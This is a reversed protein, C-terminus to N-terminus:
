IPKQLSRKLQPFDWEYVVAVDDDEVIAHATALHVTAEDDDMSMAYNLFALEGIFHFPQIFSLIPQRLEAIYRLSM